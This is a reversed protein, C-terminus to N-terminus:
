KPRTLDQAPKFEDPVEYLNQGWQLPVAYAANANSLLPVTYALLNEIAKKALNQESTQKCRTPLFASSPDRIRESMAPLLLRTALM